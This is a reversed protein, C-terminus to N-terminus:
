SVRHSESGDSSDDRLEREASYKIAKVVRDVLTELTADSNKVVFAINQGLLSCLVAAVSSERHSELIPVIELFLQRCREIEEPDRLVGNEDTIGREQLQENTAATFLKNAM